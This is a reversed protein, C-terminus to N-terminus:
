RSRHAPFRYRGTIAYQFLIDDEVPGAGINHIILPRLTGEAKRDSVIGIHPLGGPLTWTVLDGPKYIAPDTTFPLSRGHRSFYVQLNPVRRHDINSDPQRLGWRRPYADFDLRMDEHVLQQLDVGVTRYARVVVDTCVGIHKPVDGMPYRLKRYSGDYTVASQTQKRAAEIIRATTDTQAACDRGAIAAAFVVGAVVFKFTM